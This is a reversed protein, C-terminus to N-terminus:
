HVPRSFRLGPLTRPNSDWRRRRATAEPEDRPLEVEVLLGGDPHNAASVTGGHAEVAQRTIALGLGTGGSQRDRAESVRYFPEFLHALSAPPVGPGHDRVRVSARAAEGDEAAPSGLEIVVESDEATYRVANRVINELASRLLHRVGRVTAEGGPLVTVGVRCRRSGAEFEADAAIERVMEPLDFTERGEAPPRNELESLLLLQRILENLRQAERQIRALEPHCEVGVKRFALGLAVNVRTLPSGLEHSIDAILRRQATLLSEIRAAMDDFDVALESFEDHRHILGPSTGVRAGLDGGALRRAAAQLRRVPGVVYRALGYCVVASTAVAAAIRLWANATTPLLFSTRPRVLLFVYRHGDQAGSVPRAILVETLLRELQLDASVEARSVLERTDTPLPLGSVERRTELDVLYGREPRTRVARGPTPPPPPFKKLFARLAAPGSKEYIEVSSAALRDLRQLPINLQRPFFENPDTLYITAAVAAALSLMALWFWLFIRWFVSRMPKRGPRPPTGGADHAAESKSLAAATHM